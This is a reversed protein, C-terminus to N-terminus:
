AVGRERVIGAAVEAKKRYPKGTLIELVRQGATQTENVLKTARSYLVANFLLTCVAVLLGFATCNMAESIGQALMQQRTIMDASAMSKFSIILGTITGLLGFLTAVNALLPLESLGKTLKPTNEHLSAKIAFAIHEEDRGLRTAAVKVVQSLPADPTADCEKIVSEVDGTIVAKEFADMLKRSNVQGFYLARIRSVGLTLAVIAVFLIAYMFVGGEQFALIIGM